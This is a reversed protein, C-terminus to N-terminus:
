PKVPRNDARELAEELQVKQGAELVIEKSLRKFGDAEITVDYGGPPLSLELPTTKPAPWGNLM